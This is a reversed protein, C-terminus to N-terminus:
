IFGKKQFLDVLRTVLLFILQGSFNQHGGIEKHHGFLNLLRILSFDKM